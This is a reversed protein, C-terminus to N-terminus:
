GEALVAGVDSIREVVRVGDLVEPAPRGDAIWVASMGAGLAGLVDREWSDGIMTSGKAEAGLQELAYGFVAPDPKGMGLEGSIVVADFCPALGTGEFKLRQIDAPGNTLLGLPRRGSLSRVLAEAGDLLSHGRRQAAIYADALSGAVAADEIGLEALAERWVGSRYGSVWHRLDDLVGHGGEFTAWLGEWSAIGLDVCLSFYPGARWAARACRLAVEEFQRPDQGPLLSAVQRLSRRAVEAEVILTDDLDFILAGETMPHGYRRLRFGVMREDFLTRGTARRETTGNSATAETTTRM